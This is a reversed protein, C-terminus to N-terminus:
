SDHHLENHSFWTTFTMELAEVFASLQESHYPLGGKDCFHTLTALDKSADQPAVLLEDFCDRCDSKLVTKRKNGIAFPFEELTGAGPCVNLADVQGLLSAPDDCADHLM